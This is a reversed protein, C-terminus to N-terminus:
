IAASIAVKRAVIIDVADKRLDFAKAKLNEM